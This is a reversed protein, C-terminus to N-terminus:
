AVVFDADTLVAGNTLQAFAVASGAGGADADYYLMGSTQNYAIYGDTMAAAPNAIGGFIEASLEIKDGSASDFDLIQDRNGKNLASSFVFTDAGDVGAIIGPVDDGGYLVDNGGGGELRDSGGKGNIFNNGGNGILVNDAGNGVANVSNFGMLTINEINDYAAGKHTLNYHGTSIITDNGGNAAEVITDNRGAYYTDNGDGGVLTNTGINGRIVNDLANGTGNIATAGTLTLNEVNTALSYSVSSVVTDTGGGIAEVVQNTADDIFYTNNLDNGTVTVNTGFYAKEVMAANTSMDFNVLTYLTDNNNYRSAAAAEVIMDGANDVIYVDNGDGGIMTDAGGKGNIFNNASNGILVNDAGNGVANVAKNGTLTINEINDYAAGKHTLNYHGTSVITDNGGNAAEVITDNRGAYYTDNGGLGVFTDIGGTGVMVNDSGNGTGTLGASTLVLNEVNAGLTYDVSSLVKDTGENVNETITDGINDVTYVDNGLGGAMAVPGVTNYYYDSAATGNGGGNIYNYTISIAM